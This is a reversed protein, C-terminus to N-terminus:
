DMAKTYRAERYLKAYKLAEMDVPSKEHTQLVADLRQLTILRYNGDAKSMYIPM